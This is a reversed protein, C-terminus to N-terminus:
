AVALSEDAGQGVAGLIGAQRLEGNLKARKARAREDRKRQRECVICRPNRQSKRSVDYYYLDGTRPERCSCCIYTQKRLQLKKKRDADCLACRPSHGTKSHRDKTFFKALQKTHCTCCVLSQVEPLLVLTM